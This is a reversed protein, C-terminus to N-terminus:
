AAYGWAQFQSQLLADNKFACFYVFEPALDLGNPWVITNLESDVRVQAFLAVDSLSQFIGKDLIVSLDAIGVRGDSFSVNITYERLYEVSMIHLM